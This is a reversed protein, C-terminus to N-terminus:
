LIKIVGAAVWLMSMAVTIVLGISCALFMYGVIAMDGTLFSFQMSLLKPLSKFFDYPILWISNLGNNGM